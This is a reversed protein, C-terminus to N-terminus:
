KQSLSNTSNKKPRGPNFHGPILIGLGCFGKKHRQARKGEEARRWKTSTLIGLFQQRHDIIRAFVNQEYKEDGNRHTRRVKSKSPLLASETLFGFSM